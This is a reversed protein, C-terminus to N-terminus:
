LWGAEEAIRAAQSRSSAHLKGMASSLTNRITGESLHLRSALDATSEVSRTLALVESERETLPSAGRSVASLALSTDIVREGRATRQIADVLEAPPTDKLLFGLAGHDMARALYGPRAFVTLILVRVLPLSEALEKAVDLGDRGPMDIDLVAVDPSTSEALALVEDGRGCLGVVELDPDRSLVEALTARLLTQDEALLVRIM